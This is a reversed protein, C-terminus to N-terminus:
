LGSSRLWLKRCVASAFYINGPPLSLVLSLGRFLPSSWEMQLHGNFLLTGMLTFARKTDEVFQLDSARGTGAATRMQIGYLM